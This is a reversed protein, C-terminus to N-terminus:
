TQKLAFSHWAVINLLVWDITGMLTLFAVLGMVVLKCSTVLVKVVVQIFKSRLLEIKKEECLVTM